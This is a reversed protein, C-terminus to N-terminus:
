APVAPNRHPSRLEVSVRQADLPEFFFVTRRQTENALSSGIRGSTAIRFSSAVTRRASTGRVRTPRCSFRRRLCSRAGESCCYTHPQEAKSTSSRRSFTRWRM